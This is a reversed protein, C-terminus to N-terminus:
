TAIRILGQTRSWNLNVESIIFWKSLQYSEKSPSDARRLAEVYVPCCLVSICLCGDKSYAPNSGVVEIDLRYLGVDWVARGTSGAATTLMIYHINGSHLCQIMGRHLTNPKQESGILKTATSNIVTSLEIDTTKDTGKILSCIFPALNCLNLVPVPLVACYNNM